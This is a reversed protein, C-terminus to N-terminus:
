LICLVSQLQIYMIIINYFYKGTAQPKWKRQLYEVQEEQTSLKFLPQFLTEIRRELRDGRSVSCLPFLTDVLCKLIKNPKFKLLKANSRSFYLLEFLVGYSPSDPLLERPVSDCSGEVIRM